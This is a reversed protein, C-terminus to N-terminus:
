RDITDAAQLAAKAHPPKLQHAQHAHVRAQLDRFAKIRLAIALWAPARRHDRRTLHRRPQISALATAAVLVVAIAGVAGLVGLRGRWARRALALAHHHDAALAHDRM